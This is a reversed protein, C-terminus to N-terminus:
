RCAQGRHGRALAGPGSAGVDRDQASDVHWSCAAVGTNQHAILLVRYTEIPLEEAQVQSLHFLATDGEALKVVGMEMTIYEIVEGGVVVQILTVLISLPM